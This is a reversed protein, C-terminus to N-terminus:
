ELEGDYYLFGLKHLLKKHNEIREKFDEFDKKDEALWLAESAACFRPFLLYEAIKSSTIKEAWFTCEGGLILEPKALKLEKASPSFTYTKHTTTVGLRGPEEYSKKNKLNLYFRDQPSMIVRHNREVAKIGGETGRWSQVIVDQPLTNHRNNDLVEDWGIATKGLSEVIESIKVTAWAQLEAPTDLKEKKMRERCKPCAAWRDPLCEDGGIHIYQGPFLEAIKTLAAKYITFIEDNGLCLVDPFFGWRNEVKYPGGTCGFNPYSALLASAHGPFEVEPVITIEREAAYEIIEKIEEDSYWRRIKEGEDYIGDEAEPMTHDQRVSGVETLRPYGPVEFRWGQDDTLHWHFINLKHLACADLMKKIFDTSFFTRCTDLLFGRWTYSPKDEIQLFPIAGDAKAILQSASICAYFAGAKTFASINIGRKDVLLTYSEKNLAEKNVEDEFTTKIEINVPIGTLSQEIGACLFASAMKEKFEKNMGLSSLAIKKESITYFGDKEIVLAPRPIIEIKKM